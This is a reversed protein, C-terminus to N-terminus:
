ILEQYLAHHADAIQAIDYRETLPRSAARAEQLRNQSSVMAAAEDTTRFYLGEGSFIERFEPIDRIVCPLGSALAELLVISMGEAHSPLFFLDAASYAGTIDPVFGPFILNKGSGRKKRQIRFYEKSFIGYPFGGVWIWTLEPCRGALEIVDYIGKRPTQQAVTLVVQQDESIGLSERFPIRKEPYPRFLDRDVGNPILTVPVEPAMEKIEGRCRSSIAIIHDFSQFIGPYFWNILPALALNEQNLRPTSHATVVQVGRSKRRHWLAMPGFTHFHLIDFDKEGSNWSMELGPIKQLATFLMQAATTSGVYKFFLLDEVIFNVKM